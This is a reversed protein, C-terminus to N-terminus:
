EVEIVSAVEGKKSFRAILFDSSLNHGLLTRNAVRGLSRYVLWQRQGIQVRYGAAVDAPCIKRTEAVTLQRWTVPVALQKQPTALCDLHWWAPVFLSGGYGTGMLELAGSHEVLAGGRKESQWESLALPLVVARPKRGSLMIERTEPPRTASIGADLFFKQRYQWHRPETGIVADATFLFRDKRALAIQRQVKVQGPFPIEIELYDVDADSVWCVERWEGTPQLLEGDAELSFDWVGSWITDRSCALEAHVETGLFKIAVRPDRKKWTPRLIAVQSWESYVAPWHPPLPVEPEDESTQRQATSNPTAVNSATPTAAPSEPAGGGESSSSAQRPLERPDPILSLAARCLDEFGFDERAREGRRDNQKASGPASQLAHDAHGNQLHHPASLGSGAVAPDGSLVLSGDRRTTRLLERVVHPYEEVVADPLLALGGATESEGQCAIDAQHLAVLRTWCAVLPRFHAWHRQHPMGAGDLLEDFAREVAARGAPRLAQIEGLEGLLYGLTLPLEAGWLQQALPDAELPLAAADRALRVLAALCQWWLEADLVGLLRPLSWAFEIATYATVAQSILPQITINPAIAPSGGAEELWQWLPALSREAQDYKAIKRQNALQRLWESLPSRALSSHCWTLAHKGRPLLQALQDPRRRKELYKQWPKHLQRLPLQPDIAALEGPCNASWLPNERWNAIEAVTPRPINISVTQPNVATETALMVTSNSKAKQKRTKVESQSM